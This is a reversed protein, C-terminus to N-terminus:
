YLPASIRPLRKISDKRYNTTSFSFLPQLTLTEVVLDVFIYKNLKTVSWHKCNSSSSIYLVELFNGFTHFDALGPILGELRKSSSDGDQQDNQANQEREVTLLDGISFTRLLNHTNHGPVMTHQDHMIDIIGETSAENKNM